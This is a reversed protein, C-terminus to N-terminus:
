SKAFETGLDVVSGQAYDVCFGEAGKPVTTYIKGADLGGSIEDLVHYDAPGELTMRVSNAYTLEVLGTEIFIRDSAAGAVPTLHHARPQTNGRRGMGLGLM